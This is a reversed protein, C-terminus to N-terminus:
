HMRSIHTCSRSVEAIMSRSVHASKVRCTCLLEGCHPLQVHLLALPEEQDEGDGAHAAEVFEGFQSLLDDADFVVLVDRDDDNAVLGIQFISSRDGSSSCILQGLM